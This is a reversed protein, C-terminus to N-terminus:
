RGPIGSLGADLGPGLRVVRCFAQQWGPLADICADVRPCATDPMAGGSGALVTLSLGAAGQGTAFRHRM